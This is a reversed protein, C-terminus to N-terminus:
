SLVLETSASMSRLVISTSILHFSILDDHQSKMFVRSGGCEGSVVGCEGRVVGREGSVVGCEGSVVGM